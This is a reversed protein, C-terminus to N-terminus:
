QPPNPKASVSEDSRLQRSPLYRQITAAVSPGDWDAPGTYRAVERGERDVLLTTPVGVIGLKAQADTTSDVYIGLSRVDIEDYFSKVAAVGGRDISLALVQFDDSGLKAQLRDLAPMEKRCPGCWTAWVNLLVSKGRFQALTRKNGDADEFAVDAIARPSALPMLGLTPADQASSASPVPLEAFYRVGVFAVGIVVVGLAALRLLNRRHNAALIPVDMTGM